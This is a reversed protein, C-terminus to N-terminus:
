DGGQIGGQAMRELDLIRDLQEPPLLGRQLVVERISRGTRLAEACVTAAQAYGIYPNLATVIALSREAWFRCMQENAEIGQVCRSTFLQLGRTLIEMAQCLNYAMIPMMVNLELQGAQTCYAICTDNGLVHFCVMNLMEAMVPNVKGPMISSGPQVAPLSIEALGTMPGSALLRLDNAIRTLTLALNRLCASYAAIDAMNQMAEFLNLASRLRMGTLAELEGIM